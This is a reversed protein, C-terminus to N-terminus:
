RNLGEIGETEKPFGSREPGRNNDSNRLGKRNDQERRFDDKREGDGSTPSCWWFM